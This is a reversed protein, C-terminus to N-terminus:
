GAKDEGCVKVDGSKKHLYNNAKTEGGRPSCLSAKNLKDPQDQLPIIARPVAPALCVRNGM